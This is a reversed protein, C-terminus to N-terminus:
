PGTMEDINALDQGTSDLAITNTTGSKLTVTVNQTVWTTWAGTSNFTINQAVGNVVLSGTRTGSALAYRFTLTQGGGAGGNVNNFTMSGGTTSSNVYGTGHYGGNTTEVVDGGALTANEAPYTTPGSANVTINVAASTTTAGSNDTAKATLVYSGAAVGNWTFTYPSTTDTGLLTSGQYFAVSTVTGDSDTATANITINAGANFTANNAPSTISVTPAVNGVTGDAELKVIDYEIGGPTPAGPCSTM